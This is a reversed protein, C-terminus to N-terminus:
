RSNFIAFATAIRCENKVPEAVFASKCDQNGLDAVRLRPRDIGVFDAALGRHSM